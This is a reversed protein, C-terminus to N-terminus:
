RTVRGLPHMVAGLEKLAFPRITQHTLSIRIKDAFPRPEWHDYDMFYAYGAGWTGVDWLASDWKSYSPTFTLIQQGTQLGEDASYSVVVQDDGFAYVAYVYGEHVKTPLGVELDATTLISVIPRGGDSYIETEWQLMRGETASFAFLENQDPVQTQGMLCGISLQDRVMPGHWQIGQSAAPSDIGSRWAAYAPQFARLDCWLERDAYTMGPRVYALIYFGRYFIGRCRNRYAAPVAKIVPEIEYGIPVPLGDIPFFWVNDVGMGICGHDTWALTDAGAVGAREHIKSFASSPVGGSGDFDRQHVWTSTPTCIYLRGNYGVETKDPGPTFVAEIDESEDVFLYQPSSTTPNTWDTFLNTRSYYVRKGTYCLLRDFYPGAPFGKAPIGTGTVNAISIGDLTVLIGDTGHNNGLYLGTVEGAVAGRWTQGAALAPLGTLATYVGTADTVVGIEDVAAKRVAVITKGSTANLYFRKAFPVGTVGAWPTANVFVSGRRKQFIQSVYPIFKQSLLVSGPRLAKPDNRLDLGTWPSSMVAV